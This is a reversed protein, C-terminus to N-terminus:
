TQPSRPRQGYRGAHARPGAASAQREAPRPLRPASPSRLQRVKTAADDSSSKKRGHREEQQLVTYASDQSPWQEQSQERQPNKSSCRCRDRVFTYCRDGGYPHYLSGENFAESHSGGSTIKSSEGDLKPVEIERRPLESQSVLTILALADADM